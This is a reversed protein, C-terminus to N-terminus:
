LRVLVLWAHIEHRLRVAPDRRHLEVSAVEILLHSRHRRRRMNWHGKAAELLLRRRESAEHRVHDLGIVVHSRWVGLVLRARSTAVGLLSVIFDNMLDNRIRHGAHRLQRVNRLKACGLLRSLLVPELGVLRQAHRLRWSFFFFLGRSDHLLGLLRRWHVMARHRWGLLLGDLHVVDRLRRLQLEIGHGLEIAYVLILWLCRGGRVRLVLEANIM